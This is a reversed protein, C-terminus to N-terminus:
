THTTKVDFGCLLRQFLGKDTIVPGLCDLGFSPLNRPCYSNENIVCDPTGRTEVYWLCNVFALANSSILLFFCNEKSICFISKSRCLNVILSIALSAMSRSFSILVFKLYIKERIVIPFFFVNLLLSQKVFVILFVNLQM